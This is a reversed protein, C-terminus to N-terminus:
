GLRNGVGGFRRDARRGAAERYLAVVAAEPWVRQERLALAQAAAERRAAGDGVVHDLAAAVAASDGPPVLAMGALDGVAERTGPLDTAVVPLGMELYEIVKTPLSHLYNPLPRLLSLGASAGAAQEM